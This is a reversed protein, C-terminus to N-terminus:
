RHWYRSSQLDNNLSCVFLKKLRRLSNVFLHYICHLYICKHLNEICLDSLELKKGLPPLGLLRFRDETEELRRRSSFYSATHVIYLVNQTILKWYNWVLFILMIICITFFINISQEFFCRLFALRTAMLPRWCYWIMDFLKCDIRSFRCSGRVGGDQVFWCKVALPGTVM